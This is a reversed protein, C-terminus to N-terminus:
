ITSLIMSLNFTSSVNCRSSLRSTIATLLSAAAARVVNAEGRQSFIRIAYYCLSEEEIALLSLM